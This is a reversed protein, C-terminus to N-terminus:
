AVSEAAVGSHEGAQRPLRLAILLGPIAWLALVILAATPSSIFIQVTLVVFVGGLNAALFLFGTATGARHPGVHIESWDLVVPLTGLLVFGVAALLAGVFWPPHVVAIVMLAAALSLTVTIALARRLEHRAVFTPVVAAGVVGFVTMFAIVAAAADPHGFADMIADLWTALANYSGVGVFLLAALKWILPDNRLWRLSTWGPTDTSQHPLRLTALVALAAVVAFAAQAGLLLGFGGANVLVPSLLVATLIGVFQSGTAISIATTQEDPPFYRAAIKTSANLVLPQGISMVLQGFFVWGYSSTDVLRLLAGSATFLAGAGLAQPYNRDMWRGTPIALLVFMLPNVVALDGVAGESVGLQAQTQQSISAFTLWLAQTSVVLLAFAGVALWRSSGVTRPAAAASAV